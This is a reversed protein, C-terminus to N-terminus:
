AKRYWLSEVTRSVNSSLEEVPPNRKPNGNLIESRLVKVSQPASISVKCTASVIVTIVEGSSTTFTLSEGSKRTLVLM